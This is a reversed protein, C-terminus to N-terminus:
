IVIPPREAKMIMATVNGPVVQARNSVQAVALSLYCSEPDHKNFGIELHLPM